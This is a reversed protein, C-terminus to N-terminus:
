RKTKEDLHVFYLADEGRFLLKGDGISPWLQHDIKQMHRGDSCLIDVGYEKNMWESWCVVPKTFSQNTMDVIAIRDVVVAAISDNEASECNWGRISDDEVWYIWPGSTQIHRPYNGRTAFKETTDDKTRYLWIDHNIDVWVPGCSSLGPSYWKQAPVTLEIKISQGATNLLAFSEQTVFLQGEKLVAPPSTYEQVFRYKQDMVGSSTDYIGGFMGGVWIADGNTSSISEIHEITERRQVDYIASKKGNCGIIFHHKLMPQNIDSCTHSMDLIPFVTPSWLFLDM